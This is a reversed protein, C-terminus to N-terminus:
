IRKELEVAERKLRAIRLRIKDQDKLKALCGSITTRGYRRVLKMVEPMAAKRAARRKELTNM